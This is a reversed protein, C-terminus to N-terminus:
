YNLGVINFKGEAIQVEPGLCEPSYPDNPDLKQERSVLLGSFTGTFRAMFDVDTRQREIHFSFLDNVCQDYSSSEYHRESNDSYQMTGEAFDHSSNEVYPGAFQFVARGDVEIQVILGEDPSNSVIFIPFQSDDSRMGLNFSKGNLEFSATSEMSSTNSSSNGNDADPSKDKKCSAVFVIIAILYPTAREM